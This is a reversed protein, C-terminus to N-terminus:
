NTDQILHIPSIKMRKTKTGVARVIVLHTTETTVVIPSGVIVEGFWISGKYSIDIVEAVAPLCFLILIVRSNVHM